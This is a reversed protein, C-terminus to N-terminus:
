PFFWASISLVPGPSAPYRPALASRLSSVALAMALSSAHRSAMSASMHSCSPAPAGCALSFVICSAAAGAWCCSVSAFGMAGCSPVGISPPNHGVFGFPPYSGVLVADFGFPEGQGLHRIMICPQRHIAPSLALSSALPCITTLLPLYHGAIAWM